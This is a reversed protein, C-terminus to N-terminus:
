PSRFRRVVSSSRRRDCRNVAQPASHERGRPLRIVEPHENRPREVLAVPRRRGIAFRLAAPVGIVISRARYRRPSIRSGAEDRIIRTSPGEEHWDGAATIATTRIRLTRPSDEIRAWRRFGRGKRRRPNTPPGRGSVSASTFGVGQANRGLTKSTTGSRSVAILRPAMPSSPGPRHRRRGHEQGDGDRLSGPKKGSGPNQANCRGEKGTRGTPNIGAPSRVHLPSNSRDCSGFLL